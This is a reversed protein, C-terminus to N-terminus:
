RDGFNQTGDIESENMKGYLGLKREIADLRADVTLEPCADPPYQKPGLEAFWQVNPFVGVCDPQMGTIPPNIYFKLYDGEWKYYEATIRTEGESNKVRYQHIM